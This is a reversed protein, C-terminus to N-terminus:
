LPSVLGHGERVSEGKAGNDGESSVPRVRQVAELRDAQGCGLEKDLV